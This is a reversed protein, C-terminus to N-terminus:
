DELMLLVSVARSCLNTVWGSTDDLARIGPLSKGELLEKYADGRPLIHSMKDVLGLKKMTAIVDDGGIITTVGKENLEALKKAIAKTGIDFKEMGFVGITTGHWIVTKAQDLCKNYMDIARSGIDLGMWGEPIGIAALVTKSNAEPAFKDAVVVDWPLLFEVRRATARYVLSKAIDLKDEEVLSTGVSHNLARLFTFAMRGGIILSDVKGLLYEIVGIESSLKSGCVIAITRTQRPTPVAEILYDLQPSSFAGVFYDLEKQMLFGAVCPSLFETVKKVTAHPRHATRFADNVYLDALSALKKAFESDNKEEEKYFRVNELLLVGGDPIEAVLKEVEEGICDNAMGVKTQILESLRPVLPKLSYKPTIVGEPHGLHSCLIVKAGHRILYRITPVAAKVRTDDTINLIEDLPVDLDVRVFVKKGRLDSEKLDGVSKKKLPM